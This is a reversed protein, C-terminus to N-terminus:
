PKGSLDPKIQAYLEDAAAAVQDLVKKFSQFDISEANLEARVFLDDDDDLGVKVYDVAHNYKLLRHFLPQSLKLNQKKAVIAGILLLNNEPSVTVFVELDTLAKGKFPVVWLTDSAKTYPGGYQELFQSTQKVLSSQQPSAAVAPENWAYELQSNRPNFSLNSGVLLGAM